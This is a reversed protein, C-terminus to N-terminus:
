NKIAEVGKSYIANAYKLVREEFDAVKRTMYKRTKADTIDNLAAKLDQIPEIVGDLDYILSAFIDKLSQNDKSM